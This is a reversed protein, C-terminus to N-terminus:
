KRVEFAVPLVLGGRFELNIEVREGARLSRKPNILMLHYGGPAFILNANATLEIQPTHAMGAMGDKVITRHIMVSAFGSSSAAVLVQPRSTNNRLAMYGAMTTVGPPSERVWADRVSVVTEQSAAAGLNLALILGITLRWNM